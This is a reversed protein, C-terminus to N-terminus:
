YLHFAYVGKDIWQHFETQMQSVGGPYNRQFFRTSNLVPSDCTQLSARHLFKALIEKGRDNSLLFYVLAWSYAYLKRSQGGRWSSYTSPLLTNLSLHPAKLHRFWDRHPDVRVMQVRSGIPEMYEALGENLWRPLPGFNGRTIVHTAEHVATTMAQAENEEFVGVINKSGFHFGRGSPKSSKSLKSKLANFDDRDRFISINIRTQKMTSRSAVSSLVKYVSRIDIELDNKYRPLISNEGFNLEFYSTSTSRSLIERSEGSSPPQSGFHTRGNEDVWKHIKVKTVTEELQGTASKRCSTYDSGSHNEEVQSDVSADVGTTPLILCVIFFLVIIKKNM